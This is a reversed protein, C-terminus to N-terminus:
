KENKNILINYNFLLFNSPIWQSIKINKCSCGFITVLSVGDVEFWVLSGQILRKEIISIAKANKKKAQLM